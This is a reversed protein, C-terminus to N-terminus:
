ETKVTFVKVLQLICIVAVLYAFFAVPSWWTSTSTGFFATLMGFDVASDLYGVALFLGLVTQIASIIKYGAM